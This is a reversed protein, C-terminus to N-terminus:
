ATQGHRKSTLDRRLRGAYEHLIRETAVLYQRSRWCCLTLPIWCVIYVWMSRRYFALHFDPMAAHPEFPDPIFYSYRDAVFVAVSTLVPFLFFFARVGIFSWRNLTNILKLKRPAITFGHQRLSRFRALGPNLTLLVSNALVSHFIRWRQEATFSRVSTQADGASASRQAARDDQASDTDRLLFGITYNERRSVLLLWLSLILLIATGVVPADDVSVRIGLFPVQVIRAAAFDKFAQERLIGAVTTPEVKVDKEAVLWNYDYSFYANYTTILMMVSVIAMVGLTLRTQSQATHAGNLRETISQSTEATWDAVHEFEDMSPQLATTVSKGEAPVAWSRNCGDGPTADEM